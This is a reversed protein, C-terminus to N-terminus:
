RAGSHGVRRTPVTGAISKSRHRLEVSGGHHVHDGGSGSRPGRMAESFCCHLGRSFRDDGRHRWDHQGARNAHDLARKNCQYAHQNVHAVDHRLGAEFPAVDRGDGAHRQHRRKRELDSVDVLHLREAAVLLLIEPEGGCPRHHEEDQDANREKGLSALLERPDPEATEVDDFEDREQNEAAGQEHQHPAPGPFAAERPAGGDNAAPRGALRQDLRQPLLAIGIHAHDSHEVVAAVFTRRLACVARALEAGDIVEYLERPPGADIEHDKRQRDRGLAADQLHEFLEPHQRDVDPKGRM